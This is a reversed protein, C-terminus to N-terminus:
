ITYILLIIIIYYYILYYELKYLYVKRVLDNIIFELKKAYDTGFIEELKDNSIGENHSELITIFKEKISIDM